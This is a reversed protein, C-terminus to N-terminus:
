NKIMKQNNLIPIMDTM